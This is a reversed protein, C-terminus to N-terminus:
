KLAVQFASILVQRQGDDDREATKGFARTVRRFLGRLKTKGAPQMNDAMDGSGDEQAERLLAQTAFSSQEKPINVAVATTVTPAMKDPHAPAVALLKSSRGSTDGAPAAEAIMPAPTTGITRPATKPKDIKEHRVAVANKNTHLATAVASTVASPTNKAPVTAAVNAPVIAAVTAPAKTAATKAAVPTTGVIGRVVGNKHGWPLALLVVAAVVAAAAGAKLWPMMVVRRRKENRYLSEKGPFVIEPDPRSVTMMLQELERARATDQQVLKEVAKRGNDDLEGDVYAVFTEEYKLLNNKDPFQRDDEPELRCQLMTEWEERIDPHADVFREVALRTEAPLENDAYLLFFEEYNERTIM